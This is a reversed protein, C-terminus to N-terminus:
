VKHDVAVNGAFARVDGSSTYQQASGDDGAILRITRDIYSLSQRILLGNRRNVTGIKELVDLLAKRQDRLVPAKEGAEEILRNMSIPRGYRGDRNLGDLLAQREREAAAFEKVLEIQKEVADKVRAVDGAVLIDQEGSLVALLRELLDAERALVAALTELGHRDM